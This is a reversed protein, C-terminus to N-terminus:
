FLLYDEPSARSANLSNKLFFQHFGLTKLSEEFCSAFRPFNFGTLILFCGIVGIAM